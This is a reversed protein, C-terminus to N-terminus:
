HRQCFQGFLDVLDETQIADFSLTGIEEAEVVLNHLVHTVVRRVDDTEELCPVFAHGLLGDGVIGCVAYAQNGDM